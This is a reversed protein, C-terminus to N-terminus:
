VDASTVFCNALILYLDFVVLFCNRGSIYLRLVFQYGSPSFWLVSLCRFTGSAKSILWDGSSEVLTQHQHKPKCNLYITLIYPLFIIAVKFGKDSFCSVHIATILLNM